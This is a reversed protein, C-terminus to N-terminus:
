LYLFINAAAILSMALDDDEDDNDIMREYAQKWFNYEVEYIASVCMDNKQIYPWREVKLQYYILTTAENTSWWDTICNWANRRMTHCQKIAESHYWKSHISIYDEFPKDNPFLNCFAEGLSNEGCTCNKTFSKKFFDETISTCSSDSECLVPLKKNSSSLKDTCYIQEDTESVGCMTSSCLPNLNEESCSKVNEHPLISYYPRCTGATAHSGAGIDCGLWNQCDFESKCGKSGDSIQKTCISSSNCYLGIDCDWTSTCSGNEKIGRCVGDVCGQASHLCEEKSICKEGPYIGSSAPQYQACTANTSNPSYSPPCYPTEVEGCLQIYYASSKEDWYICQNKYFKQNSTQCQYTDCTLSNIFALKSLFVLLIM